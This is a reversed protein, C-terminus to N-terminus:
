SPFDTRDERLGNGPHQKAERRQLSAFFDFRDVRDRGILKDAPTSLVAWYAYPPLQLCESCELRLVPFDSSQLTFMIQDFGDEGFEDRLMRDVFEKDSLTHYWAGFADLQASPPFTREVKRLEGVEKEPKKCVQCQAAARNESTKTRGTM